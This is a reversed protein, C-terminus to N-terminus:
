SFRDGTWPDATNSYGRVEWFGPKPHVPCHHQALARRAISRNARVRRGVRSLRVPQPLHVRSSGFSGIRVIQATMFCEPANNPREGQARGRIGTPHM